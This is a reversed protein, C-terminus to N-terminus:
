EEEELIYINHGKRRKEEPPVLMYDEGFLQSLYEDYMEPIYFYADEFKVLTPTGYIKKDMLQKKFSYQSCLSAVKITKEDKYKKLLKDGKNLIINRFTKLIQSIMKKTIFKISSQTYIRVDIMLIIRKLRNIKKEFKVQKKTEDPINDLPFIDLYLRKDLKSCRLQKNDIYTKNFYIRTLLNDSNNTKKFNIVEHKTDFRDCLTLFKEYDKRFMGIDIDDDWPIFGKHRVAGLASGGLFYYNIENDVLFKHLEKMLALQMQQVENISLLKM